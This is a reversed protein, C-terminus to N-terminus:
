LALKDQLTKYLPARDLWQGLFGALSPAAVADTLTPLPAEGPRFQRTFNWTPEMRQPNVKGFRQHYGFRILSETLLLDFSAALGADDSRDVRQRLAKLASLYYDESDLGHTEATALLTLLEDIRGPQTWVPSYNRAAYFDPLLRGSALALGELYVGGSARLDGAQTTLQQQVAQAAPAGAAPHPSCALLATLLAPLGHLPRNQM